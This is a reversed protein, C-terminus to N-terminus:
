DQSLKKILTYVTLALVAANCKCSLYQLCPAPHEISADLLVSRSILEAEKGM